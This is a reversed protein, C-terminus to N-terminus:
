GKVAGSTLGAIFDQQLLLFLAAIPVVSVVTAAVILGYDQYYTTRLQAVAVALPQRAPDQIVVQPLIFNNWTGLYTLLMFAGIMPRLLPLAIRPFVLLERCGDIRAAELLEMPVSRLSAQRFLYVGFAPALLPLVLGTYTNLLSLEYLLQYQPAILLQAPVILAALVAWFAVRRGTFRYRALAFGGAACCLTALLSVVSAFFVSNLLSRGLGISPDTFLRTYNSVTLRDWAVDLFGEGAPLFASTFLDETTKFSAVVLWAMPVLVVLGLPLLTAHVAVGGIMTRAPHRAM